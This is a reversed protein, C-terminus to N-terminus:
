LTYDVPSDELSHHDSTLYHALLSSSSNSSYSLGGYSRDDDPSRTVTHVHNLDGSTGNGAENNYEIWVSPNYVRYYIPEDQSVEGIWVFYTEGFSDDIDSMWDDALDEDLNYVYEQVLKRLKKKQSSNLKSAKLGVGDFQSFDFDLSEDLTSQIGMGSSGSANSSSNDSSANGDFGPVSGNTANTANGMTMNGPASGNTANGGGGTSSPAAEIGRSGDQIATSQQSDSLSNMFAFALDREGDFVDTGNLKVPESGILNPVITAQDGYVVFNLALHHGDLQYGWIADSSPDGFMAVHYDEVSWEEANKDELWAEATQTIFQVKDSGADSMWSDVVDYFTDIQSDNLDSFPVGGRDGTLAPPLNTWSFEEENGVTYTADSLVDDSLSERFTVITDVLATIEDSTSKEVEGTTTSSGEETDTSSETGTESGTSGATDTSSGSATSSSMSTGGTTSNSSSDSDSSCGTIAAVTSTGLLAILKRRTFPEGDSGSDDSGM